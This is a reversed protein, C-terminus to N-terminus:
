NRLPLLFQCYLNKLENRKTWHLGAYIRNTSVKEPLLFSTEAIFLKTSKPSHKTKIQLNMIKTTYIILHKRFFCRETNGHRYKVMIQYIVNIIACPRPM